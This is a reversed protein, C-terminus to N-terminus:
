LIDEYIGLIKMFFNFSTRRNNLLNLNKNTQKDFDIGSNGLIDNDFSSIDTNTPFKLKYFIFFYKEGWFMLISVGLSLDRKASNLNVM